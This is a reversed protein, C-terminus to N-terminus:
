QDYKPMVGSQLGELQRLVYDTIRPMAILSLEESLRKYKESAVEAIANCLAAKAFERYKGEDMQMAM